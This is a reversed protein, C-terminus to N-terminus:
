KLNTGRTEISNLGPVNQAFERRESPHTSRRGIAEEPRIKRSNCVRNDNKTHVESKQGFARKGL